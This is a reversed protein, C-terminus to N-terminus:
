PASGRGVADILERAAADADVVADRLEREINAPDRSTGTGGRARSEQFEEFLACADHTIAVVEAVLLAIDPRVPTM